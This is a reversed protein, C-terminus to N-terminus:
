APRPVLSLHTQAKLLEPQVSYMDTEMRTTTIHLWMVLTTLKSHVKPTATIDVDAITYDTLYMNTKM